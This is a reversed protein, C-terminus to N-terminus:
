IREVLFYCGEWEDVRERKFIQSWNNDKRSTIAVLIRSGQYVLFALHSYIDEEISVVVTEESFGEEGLCAVYRSDVARYGNKLLVEPILESGKEDFVVVYLNKAELNDTGKIYIEAAYQIFDFKELKERTFAINNIEKIIKM